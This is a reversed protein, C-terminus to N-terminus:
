AVLVDKTKREILDPLRRNLYWRLYPGVLPRYDRGGRRGNKDLNKLKTKISNPFKNDIQADSNPNVGGVLRLRVRLMKVTAYESQPVIGTLRKGARPGSTAITNRIGQVRYQGPNNGTRVVNSSLTVEIKGLIESTNKTNTFYEQLKGTHFFFRNKSINNIIKKKFKRKRTAKKLTAWEPSFDDGFRGSLTPASERDIGKLVYSFFGTLDTEISNKLKESAGTVAENVIGTTFTNLDKLVNNLRRAM